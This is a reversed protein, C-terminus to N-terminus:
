PDLRVAFVTWPLDDDVDDDVGNAADNEVEGDADGDVDGDELTEPVGWTDTIEFGADLLQERTTEAGAINWAMGVGSDLWDPNEGVWEHTGECVLARGGPRLVRASEGVVAAHDAMPIHILSWCAVVGDFSDDEFPLATMDGQALAAGPASEAALQLQRRSLDLGVAAGARDIRELAPSGSGCGADLVRASAPLSELFAGLLEVARGNTSRTEDYTEALEDYARRVADKDVM